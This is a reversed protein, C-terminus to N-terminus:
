EQAQKVGSSLFNSLIRLFLRINPLRKKKRHKDTTRVVVTAVLPGLTNCVHLTFFQQYTLEVIKLISPDLLM